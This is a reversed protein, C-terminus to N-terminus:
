RSSICPGPRPTSILSSTTRLAASFAGVQFFGMQRLKSPVTASHHGSLFCDHAVDNCQIGTRGVCPDNEPIRFKARCRRGFRLDTHAVGRNVAAVSPQLGRHLFTEFPHQPICSGGVVLHFRDNGAAHDGGVDSQHFNRVAHHGRSRIIKRGGHLLDAQGVDARYRDVKDGSHLIGAARDPEAVEFRHIDHAALLDLM